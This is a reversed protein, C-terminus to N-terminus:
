VEKENAMEIQMDKYSEYAQDAAGEAYCQYADCAHEDAFEESKANIKLQDKASLQDWELEKNADPRGLPSISGLLEVSEIDYEADCGDRDRCIISVTVKVEGQEVFTTYSRTM